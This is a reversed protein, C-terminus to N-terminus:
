VEILKYNEMKYKKDCFNAITMDHTILIITKNKLKNLFDIVFAKNVEDLASTPEDLIFIKKDNIIERLLFTIQKQGGSLKEGDVGANTDLGKELNKYVTELGLEKILAEIEGRSIKRTGYTINDYVSVNFLKTNQNIYSINKRISSISYDNINQGDILIEGENVKYYGMILKILTSKGSGSKGIIAIKNGNEINLSINNLILKNNYGFLINKLEIKGDTIEIPERDDKNSDKLNYLFDETNKIISYYEILKPSWYSLDMLYQLYYLVTLFVAVLLGGSIKKNKFLLITITNIGIFLFINNIHCSVKISNICNIASRYRDKYVDNREKNEKLERNLNNSSYISFLNSMKDKYVENLTEFYSYSDIGYDVCKSVVSKIRYFMFILGCLVIIGIRYDLVAFYVSIVLIIFTKPIVYNLSLDFFDKFMEPLMILRTNIIGIKIEDIQTEYKIFLKETIYNRLYTTFEPILHADTINTLYYSFATIIWAIVIYVFAIIIKKLNKNKEYLTNILNGTLNPVIISELPYSLFIGLIYICLYFRNKKDNLFDKFIYLIKM